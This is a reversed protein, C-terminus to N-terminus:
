EGFSAYWLALKTSRTSEARRPRLNANHSLALAEYRASAARDARLHRASILGRYRATEARLARQRAIVRQAYAEALETYRAGDAQFGRLTRTAYSEALRSYRAVEANCARTVAEASCVSALARAYAVSSSIITFLLTLVFARIGLSALSRFAKGKM